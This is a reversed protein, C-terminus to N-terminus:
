IREVRAWAILAQVETLEAGHFICLALDMRPPLGVIVRVGCIVAFDSEARISGVHDASAAVDYV